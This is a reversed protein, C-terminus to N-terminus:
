NKYNHSISNYNHSFYLLKTSVLRIINYHLCLCLLLKYCLWDCKYHGVSLSFQHAEVGILLCFRVDVLVHRIATGIACPIKEINHSSHPVCTRRSNISFRCFSCSVIDILHTSCWDRNSHSSLFIDITKSTCIYLIRTLQIPVPFSKKTCRAAHSCFKRNM